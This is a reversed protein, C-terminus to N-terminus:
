SDWQFCHWEKKSWYHVGQMDGLTFTVRKKVLDRSCGDVRGILPWILFCPTDILMLRGIRM